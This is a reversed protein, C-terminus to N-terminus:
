DKEILFLKELSSPKDSVKWFKKNGVTNKVNLNSYYQKQMKTLLSVYTNRQKNYAIKDILSRSKLLNKEAKM